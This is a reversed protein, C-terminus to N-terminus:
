PKGGAGGARPRQRLVQIQTNSADGFVWVQLIYSADFLVNTPAGTNLYERLLWGAAGVDWAYDIQMSRVGTTAVNVVATNERMATNETIIGKTSGSQQPALWNSFDREFRDIYKVQYYTAGTKFKFSKDQIEANGHVDQVGAPIRVSYLQEPLLKAAPYFCIVGRDAVAYSRITGAVPSLDDSKEVLVSQQTVSAADLPENYIISLM